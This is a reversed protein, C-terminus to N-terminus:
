RVGRIYMSCLPALTDVVVQKIESDTVFNVSFHGVPPAQKVAAALAGKWQGFALASDKPACRLDVAGYHKELTSCIHDIYDDLSNLEMGLVLVDIFLVLEGDGKEEPPAMGAYTAPPAKPKRGRKASETAPPATQSSPAYTAYEPPVHGQQSFGPPPLQQGQAQAAAVQQAHAMAAAQAAPPLTPIMHGPVPHATGQPTQRAADPPLVGLSTQVRAPCNVHFYQGNPLTSLNERTYVTGCLECAPTANPAPQPPQGRMANEQAQLQAMEAQIQAMRGAPAQQGPPFGGPAQGGWPSQGGQGGGPTATLTPIGAANGGAQPAPSQGKNKNLLSPMNHDGKLRFLDLLTQDVSRPCRERHPCNGYATCSDWNPEVRMPDTDRAVDIMEDVILEIADWRQRIREVPWAATEKQALHKGQTQFYVHSLRVVQVEPFFLLGVMGYTPMQITDILTSARKAYQLKSTSKWDQVEVTLYPSQREEGSSDIYTDALRINDMYGHLPIGRAKLMDNFYLEIRSGPEKPIPLFHKGARAIPKLVDEGTILYHEVEKHLKTGTDKAVTQPEEFGMVYRFFWRRKCGGYQKTDFATIQTVSLREIQGNVVM